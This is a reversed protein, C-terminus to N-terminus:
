RAVSGARTVSASPNLLVAIVMVDSGTHLRLERPNRVLALRSDPVEVGDVEITGALVYLLVDHGERAPVPATTGAAAILALVTVDSGLVDPDALQLWGQYDGADPLQHSADGGLEPQRVYVSVLVGDARPIRAVTSGTGALTVVPQWAEIALHEGDIDIETAVSALDFVTENSYRTPKLSVNALLGREEIAGVAGYGRDGSGPILTGPRIAAPLPDKTDQENGASLFLEVRPAPPLSKVLDVHAMLIAPDQAKAEEYRKQFDTAERDTILLTRIRTGILRLDTDTVGARGLRVEDLHAMEGSMARLWAFQPDNMALGLLQYPGDVRGYTKEYIRQEFDLLLKHVARLKSAITDLTAKPM